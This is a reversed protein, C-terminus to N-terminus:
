YGSTQVLDPNRGIMDTTIPLLLKYEDGPNLFDINEIVFQDGARRLDWWRKGEGIFEKYRENLIANTNEIQSGNTYGHIAEDYNEGYARQRIQNIEGSPDEGLLNKVEALLLIVDAYRYVPVDNEFIRESGSVQGLFKNFVSGFYAPENYNPYGAGGNDDVYLRIFTADKRFDDNDDLLLITEESQGYRNAGAIIFDNMSAGKDNFQPNIETSRGTMSNYINSAEDRRYQLAFIFEDNQENGVGWLEPISPVLSVGLSSIEQLASKAENFDASGGGLLNGSWIYVDGKLALTAAKSWYIRSGQYFSGDSGFASLSAAIDSKILDMVESQSSRPKSLSAPDVESLPDISIPVDGWTKLLTYYYLARLGYAQGLVHNKNNENVFSVNPVNLLFDNLRHINTYLGAWGGFPATSATINSEILDLNFASEYTRGGWIDSRIEGLLWYNGAQSRLNAYLGTHATLAGEETDWFGSATLESPAVLELESECSIFIATVLIIYIYKKM